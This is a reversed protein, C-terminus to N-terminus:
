FVFLIIATVFAIVHTRQNTAPFLSLGGSTDDAGLQVEDQDHTVKTQSSTLASDGERTRHNGTSNWTAGDDINYNDNINNKLNEQINSVIGSEVDDLTTTFSFTQNVDSEGFENTATVQVHYTAGPQLQTFTHSSSHYHSSSITGPVTFNVWLEELDSENKYAINYTIVPAYSEVHWVLTYSTGNEGVGVSYYRVPKPRGQLSILASDNGMFNTANCTYNSFDGRQVRAFQLSFRKSADVAKFLRLPNVPEVGGKFWKVQPLPEGEVVCALSTEYNLGTYVVESEARVKPPYLVQLMIAASATNGGDDDATCVYVGNDKSGATPLTLNPGLTQAGM